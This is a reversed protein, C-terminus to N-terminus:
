EIPCKVTTKPLVKCISLSDLFPETSSVILWYYIYQFIKPSFWFDAMNFCHIFFFIIVHNWLTLDQKKLATKGNTVIINLHIYKDREEYLIHTSINEIIHRPLSFSYCIPFWYSCKNKNNMGAIIYSVSFHSYHKCLLVQEWVTELLKLCKWSHHISINRKWEELSHILFFLCQNM